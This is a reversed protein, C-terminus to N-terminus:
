DCHPPHLGPHLCLEDLNVSFVQKTINGHVDIVQLTVESEVSINETLFEANVQDTLSQCSHIKIGSVSDDVTAPILLQAQHLGDADTIEFRLRIITASSAFPQLM